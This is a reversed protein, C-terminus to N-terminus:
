LNEVMISAPEALIRAVVERQHESLMEETLGDMAVAWWVTGTNPCDPCTRPSIVGFSGMHPPYDWGAAHAETPTLIKTRDCVECIHRLRWHATEPELVEGTTPMLVVGSPRRSYHAADPVSVVTIGAVTVTAGEVTLEALQARTVTVVGEAAAATAKDATVTEVAHVTAQGCGSRLMRASEPDDLKATLANINRATLELTRTTEIWEMAGTHPRPAVPNSPIDRHMNLHVHVSVLLM